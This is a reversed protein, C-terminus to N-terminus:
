MVMQLLSQNWNRFFQRLHSKIAKAVFVIFSIPQRNVTGASLNGRHRDTASIILVEDEDFQFDTSGSDISTDDV